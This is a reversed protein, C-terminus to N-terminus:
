LRHMKIAVMAKAATPGVPKGVMAKATTPAVSKKTLDFLGM